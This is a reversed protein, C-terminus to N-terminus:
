GIAPGNRSPFRRIVSGELDGACQQGTAAGARHVSLEHDGFSLRQLDGGAALLEAPDVHEANADLQRPANCRVINGCGDLVM